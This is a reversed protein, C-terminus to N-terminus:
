VQTIGISCRRLEYMIGRVRVQVVCVSYRQSYQVQVISVSYRYQVMCQVYVIGRVGISYRYQVICYMYQVYVMCLSLTYQVQLAISYRYWASKRSCYLMCWVRMCQIYEVVISFYVKYRVICIGYVRYYVYVVVYVICVIAVYIVGISCCVSYRYQVM